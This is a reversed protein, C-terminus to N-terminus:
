ETIRMRKSSPENCEVDSLQSGNEVGTQIGNSPDDDQTEDVQMLTAEELRKALREKEPQISARLHVIAENIQSNGM